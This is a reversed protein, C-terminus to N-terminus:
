GVGAGLAKARLWRRFGREVDEWGDAGLHRLLDSGEGAGGAAVSRLYARFGPALTESELLYRIFFASEAYATQRMAPDVMERWALSTLSALSPLDRRDLARALLSLAGLAGDFIATVQWGRRGRGDVVQHREQRDGGGLERLRLRGSPDIRAYALDNALGEELWPPTRPGLARTNLLHTVEHVLLAAVAERSRSGAYLGTLGFGAFGGEELGVAAVDGGTFARYEAERRFLVISELPGWGPAGAAGLGPDLGFREPYVALVETVVRDLFSALAPDALDTYFPFPGLRGPERGAPWELHSLARRLLEPDAERGPLAAPGATFLDPSGGAGAEGATLVWGKLAGYRVRAWVGRRELLPLESAADVTTLVAARLDPLERLASGAAVEVREEAVADGFAAPAGLVEPQEEEQASEQAAAPSAALALVAVAAALTSLARV